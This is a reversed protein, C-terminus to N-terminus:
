SRSCSLSILPSQYERRHLCSYRQHGPSTCPYSSRALLLPHLHMPINCGERGLDFDSAFFQLGEGEGGEREEREREGGGGDGEGKGRGRGEGERETGESGGRVRVLHAGYYAKCNILGAALLADYLEVRNPLTETKVVLTELILFWVVLSEDDSKYLTRSTHIGGVQSYILLSLM